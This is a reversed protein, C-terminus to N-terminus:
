PIRLGSEIASWVEDVRRALENPSGTNEILYDAFPRKQEAPMQAAIM